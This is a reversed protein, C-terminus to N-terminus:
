EEGEVKLSDLVHLVYIDAFVELVNHPRISKHKTNEFTAKLFDTDIISLLENETKDSSWNLVVRKNKYNLIMKKNKNNSYISNLYSM